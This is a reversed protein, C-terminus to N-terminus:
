ISINTFRCQQQKKVNLKINLMKNCKKFIKMIYLLCTKLYKIFNDNLVKLTSGYTQM